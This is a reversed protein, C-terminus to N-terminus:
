AANVSTSPETQMRMQDARLASFVTDSLQRRLLRLAATKDKGRGMQKDLYGRGPGIGRAQTIAIMHLAHNMARNGGRNLRVRALQARLEPLERHAMSVPHGKRVSWRCVVPGCDM